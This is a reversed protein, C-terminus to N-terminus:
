FSVELPSARTGRRTALALSLYQAGEPGGRHLGIETAGGFIEASIHEAM